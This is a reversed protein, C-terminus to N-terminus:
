TPRYLGGHFIPFILFVSSGPLLACDRPRSTVLVIVPSADILLKSLRDPARALLTIDHLCPCLRGFETFSPCKLDVATLTLAM